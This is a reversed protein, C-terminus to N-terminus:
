AVGWLRMLPGEKGTVPDASPLPVAEINRLAEDRESKRGYRMDHSQGEPYCGVVQFDSSSGLNKHGVGAPIVAVCGPRLRAREGKEGGFLIEAEGSFCGLAEHATSHYHHYGYVGWRWSAPWQHADFLSEFAAAMDEPDEAFVDEYILLPLRPNNPVSGDDELLYSKPELDRRLLKSMEAM